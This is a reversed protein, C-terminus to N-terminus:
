SVPELGSLVLESAGDTSSLRGECVEAIVQDFGKDTASVRATDRLVHNRRGSLDLAVSKLM